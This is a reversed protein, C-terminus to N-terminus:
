SLDKRLASLARYLRIRVANPTIGLTESIELASLDQQFHLTLVIKLDLPLRSVATLAADRNEALLLASEPLTLDTLNEEIVPDLPLQKRRRFLDRVHNAAIAFLWVRFSSDTHYDKLHAIARTFTEQTADRAEVENELLRRVFGFVPGYYRRVLAGIDGAVVLERDTAEAVTEM